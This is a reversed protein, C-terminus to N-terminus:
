YGRSEEIGLRSLGASGYDRGVDAMTSAISTKAKAVETRNSMDAKAVGGALEAYGARQTSIGKAVNAETTPDTLTYLSETAKTSREKEGRRAVNMALATDRAEDMFSKRTLAGFKGSTPDVGMSMMESGQERRAREHAGKVDTAARGAVGEYDAEAMGRLDSAMEQRGAVNGRAADVSEKELGGYMEDFRAAQTNIDTLVKAFPSDAGGGSDLSSLTNNLSTMTATNIEGWSKLFSQTMAQNSKALAASDKKSQVDAAMSELQLAKARNANKNDLKFQKSASDAAEYSSYIKNDLGTFQGFDLGPANEYTVGSGSTVKM